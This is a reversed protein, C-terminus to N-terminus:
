KEDNMRMKMRLAEWWAKWAGEDEGEGENRRDEGYVIEDGEDM